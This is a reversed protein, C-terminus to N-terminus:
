WFCAFAALASSLAAAVQAGAQPHRHRQLFLDLGEQFSLSEHKYNLDIFFVVFNPVASLNLVPKLCCRDARLGKKGNKKVRGDEELPDKARSAPYVLRECYKALM